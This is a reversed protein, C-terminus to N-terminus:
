EAAALKGDVVRVDPWASAVANAPKSQIASSLIEISVYYTNGDADTRTNMAKAESILIDTLDTIDEESETYAGVEETYYYFGGKEFWTEGNIEITYDEGEVPTEGLIYTKEKGDDGTEVRMWNVIIDARIYAGIDGTNQITVNKKETGDFKEEVVQSTVQSPTFVNKVDRTNTILYALTAGIVTTCILVLSVLVLISRTHIRRTGRMFKGNSM